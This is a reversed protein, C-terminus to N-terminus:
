EENGGYCTVQSIIEEKLEKWSRFKKMRGYIIGFLFESQGLIDHSEERVYWEFDANWFHLYIDGCKVTGEITFNEMGGYKHLAKEVSQIINKTKTPFPMYSHKFRGAIRPECSMKM